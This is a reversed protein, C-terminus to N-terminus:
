KGFYKQMPDFYYEQWGQRYKDAENEDPLGQFLILKTGDGEAELDIYLTSDPMHEPFDTTRWYQGITQNPVLEFNEGTIYGDWATFHSGVKPEGTAPSGTMATHLAGDLWADYIRDPSVPFHTTLHIM